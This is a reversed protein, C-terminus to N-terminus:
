VEYSEDTELSFVPTMLLQNVLLSKPSGAFPILEIANNENRYLAFLEGTDAQQATLPSHTTTVLQFTPLKTSIDDFHKRQWKPHLHLDVVKIFLLGRAESTKKYGKFTETIRFLSDGKWPAMNQYGDRLQDITIIVDVTQFHVQKKDKDISHFEIGSPIENLAEKFHNIGYMSSHYDLEM